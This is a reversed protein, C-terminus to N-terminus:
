LMPKCRRFGTWVAYQPRCLKASFQNQARSTFPRSRSTQRGLGLRSHSMSLKEWSSVSVLRQYTELSLCRSRSCLGTLLLWSMFYCICWVVVVVTCLCVMMMMMMMVMMMMMMMMIMIMMMMMVMMMMMMMMVMMMMMMMMVMMMMMMMVMMMMMMMVMMMMMMMMIM